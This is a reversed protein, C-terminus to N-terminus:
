PSGAGGPLPRIHGRVSLDMAIGVGAKSASGKVGLMPKTRPGGRGGWRTCMRNLYGRAVGLDLRRGERWFPRKTCGERGGVGCPVTTGERGQSCVM